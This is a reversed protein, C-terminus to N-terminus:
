PQDTSRSSSRAMTPAGKKVAIPRGPGVANFHLVCLDGGGRIGDGQRVRSLGVVVSAADSTPAAFFATQRGDSRMFNGEEGYAFQLVQPNMTVHFPVHGVDTAGSIEIMISVQDGVQIEAASPLMRVVLVSSTEPVDDDRRTPKATPPDM